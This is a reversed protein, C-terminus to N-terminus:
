YVEILLFFICECDLVGKEWGRSSEWVMMSRGVERGVEASRFAQHWAWPM